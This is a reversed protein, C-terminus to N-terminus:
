MDLVAEVSRQHERLAEKKPVISENIVTDEDLNRVSVMCNDKSVFETTVQYHVDDITINDVFLYDKEQKMKDGKREKIPKIELVKLTM